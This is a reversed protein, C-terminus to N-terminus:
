RGRYRPMCERICAGIMYALLVFLITGFGLVLLIPYFLSIFIGVVLIITGVAIESMM